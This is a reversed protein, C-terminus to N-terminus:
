HSLVKCAIRYGKEQAYADTLTVTVEGMTISEDSVVDWSYGAMQDLSNRDAKHFSHAWERSTRRDEPPIHWVAINMGKTGDDSEYYMEGTGAHGKELWNAPLVIEWINNRITLPSRVPHEESM